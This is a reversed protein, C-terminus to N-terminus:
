VSECYHEIALRFFDPLDPNLKEFFARFRADESYTQALGLMIERDPEYFYSLNEHWRAILAQVPQSAVDQDLHKALDSYINSSEAFIRSKKTESYSSWRRRFENVHKKGWRGIAEEEYAAQTTTDFGQFLAKTEMKSEGRIHKLTNDITQILSLTHQRQQELQARHSELATEIDLSKDELLNKIDRLSFDLERYFMIQQLRLVAAEDYYRYGNDGINSPKLLTIEDYYHLTRVSVNAIEALEKIQYKM